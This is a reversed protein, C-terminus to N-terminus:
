QRPVLRLSISLWGVTGDPKRVFFVPVSADPTDGALAVDAAIFHLQGAKPTMDPTIAPVIEDPLPTAMVRFMLAGNEMALTFAGNPEAYRGAYQALQEPPLATPTPAVTPTVAVATPQAVASGGFGLYRILAENLALSSLLAGGPEANALMVFAFGRDPVAVFESHEGFTDGPHAILHLSGFQQMLWPLGIDGNRLGIPKPGQPSQMLKLTEAKLVRTGGVTGDGMHFRAYKILDRPNSFIGGAPEANRPVLFPHQVQVGQAGKAHGVAYPRQMAEEPVLFSETLGLPALVLDAMAARYPKGLVVEIIRGATIFGTNNYSFYQGLPALQPFTPMKMTMFTAIADDGSGTDAFLDGWWDGSHTLLNKVTVRSSVDADAVKFDPLYTRVPANLDVKGQEILRMIATGTFTKTTSGIQFLTDATVPQKTEISAVGFSAYEERGDALIGLSVGPVGAKAMGAMVKEAVARFQPSADPSITNAVAPAAASAAAAPTGTIASAAASPPVSVTAPVSVSPIGARTAAPGASAASPPPTASPAATPTSTSRSCAALAASALATASLALFKRRSLSVNGHTM